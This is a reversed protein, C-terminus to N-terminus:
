VGLYELHLINRVAKPITQPILKRSHLLSKNYNHLKLSTKMLQCHLSSINQTSLILSNMGNDSPQSKKNTHRNLTKNRHTPSKKLNLIMSQHHLLNMMFGISTTIIPKSKLSTEMPATTTRLRSMAMEYYIDEM